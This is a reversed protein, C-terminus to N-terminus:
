NDFWFVFRIDEIEKPYDSRYKLFQSWFNGFLYGFQDGEWFAPIDWGIRRLETKVWEALDEIEKANLWSHSHADGEWKKADLRTLASIDEPLGRPAAIPEIRDDGDGNRVDALRAFLSYNRNVSPYSYHHWQGDIKVETHMHIDCGM